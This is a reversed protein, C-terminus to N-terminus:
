CRDVTEKNDNELLDRLADEIRAYDFVVGKETLRKPLVRQGTLVLSSNLGLAFCGLRVALSPASPAWPRKMARRLTTMFDANTVPNPSVGNYTGTMTIDTISRLLIGSLDDVHIWSMYQSGKGTAGGAFAKTLRRLFPFAGGDKGLVIGVRIIVTRVSDLGAHELAAEWEVCTRALFDTGSPSNEDCVSDTDGYIGAASAQVFVPPPRPIKKLAEALIGTSAVRSMVIAERNRKTFRCQISRGSLNVLAAAGSLRDVWDGPSIGDWRVYEVSQTKTEENRTLVVVSYGKDALLLSLHRGIFGSGGAIVVFQESM